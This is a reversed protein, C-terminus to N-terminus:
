KETKSIFKFSKFGVYFVVKVRGGEATSTSQRFIGIGKNVKTPNQDRQAVNM